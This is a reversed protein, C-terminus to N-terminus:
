AAEMSTLWDYASTLDDFIRTEFPIQVVPHHLFCNTQQRAEEDFCNIIAFRWLPLCSFIELFVNFTWDIDEQPLLPLLRRDSVHYRVEQKSIIAATLLMADRYQKSSCGGYWQCLLVRHSAFYEVYLYDSYFYVM